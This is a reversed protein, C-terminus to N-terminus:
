IKISLYFEWFYSSVLLLLAIRIRTSFPYRWILKSNSYRKVHKNKHSKTKKNEFMFTFIPTKIWLRTEWIERLKKRLRRTQLFVAKRYKWHTKLYYFGINVSISILIYKVRWEPISFRLSLIFHYPSSYFTTWLRWKTQCLQKGSEEWTKIESTFCWQSKAQLLKWKYFFPQNFFPSLVNLPCVAHISPLM